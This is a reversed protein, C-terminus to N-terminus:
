VVVVVVGSLAVDTGHTLREVEAHHPRVLANRPADSEDFLLPLCVGDFRAGGGLAAPDACTVNDYRNM